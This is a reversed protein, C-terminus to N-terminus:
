GRRTRECELPAVVWELRKVAANVVFVRTNNSMRDAPIVFFGLKDAAYGVTFGALKEDDRFTVVVRRGQGSAHDFTNDDVRRPNGAWSRVFFLAKLAAVEIEVPKGAAGDLALHFKTKGPGFDLTIGKLVRGDVFRAVARRGDDIGITM